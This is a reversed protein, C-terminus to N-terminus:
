PRAGQIKRLAPNQNVNLAWIGRGPTHFLAESALKDRKQFVSSDVCHQNYASQVAEEFKDPIPLHDKERQNQLEKLVRQRQMGDKHPLLLRVLDMVYPHKRRLDKSALEEEIRKLIDDDIVDLGGYGESCTAELKRFTWAM